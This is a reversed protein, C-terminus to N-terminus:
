FGLREFFLDVLFAFFNTPESVHAGSDV